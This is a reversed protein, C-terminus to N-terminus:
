QVRLKGGVTINNANSIHPNLRLLEAVTTGHDEAIRWLSDGGQVTYYAAEQGASAGADVPRMRAADGSPFGEVFAFSYAVYDRQPEQRLKLETFYASTTMWTPHFLTGPGDEYFVTALKKFNEYADPGFFEGEGRMCRCSRGLDEMVYAGYPIKHVATQREFSITYNKPNNPWVFNKYRMPALM